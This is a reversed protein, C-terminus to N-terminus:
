RKKAYLLVAAAVLVVALAKKSMCSSHPDGIAYDKGGGPQLGETGLRVGPPINLIGERRTDPAGGAGVGVFQGSPAGSADDQRTPRTAAGPM